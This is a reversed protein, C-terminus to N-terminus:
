RASFPTPRSRSRAEEREWGNAPIKPLYAVSSTRPMRHSTKQSEYAKIQPTRHTSLHSGLGFLGPSCLSIHGLPDLWINEPKLSAVVNNGHLYELICVLEAANFKAKELPFRRERQLHGFINGADGMRCILHVGDASRFAVKLPAIFPHCPQPAAQETELHADPACTTM